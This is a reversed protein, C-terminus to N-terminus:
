YQFPIYSNFPPIFCSSASPPIEGRSYLSSGESCPSDGVSSASVSRPTDNNSTDMKMSDMKLSMMGSGSMYSPSTLKETLLSQISFALAKHSLSTTMM